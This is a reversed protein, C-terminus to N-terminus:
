FVASANHQNIKKAPNEKGAPLGPLAAALNFVKQEGNRDANKKGAERAAQDQQPILQV